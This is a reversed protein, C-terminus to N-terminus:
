LHGGASLRTDVIGLFLDKLKSQTSGEAFHAMKHHHACVIALNHLADEGNEFLPIIHHVECYPIGDPKKFTNICEPHLCFHGHVDKAQKVWGKDRAFTEAIYERKERKARDMPMQDYVFAPADEHLEGHLVIPERLTYTGRKDLFTLVGDNRLYQFQQRIKAFANNNLPSHELIQGENASNFEALTFTRSGRASCFDVVLNQTFEKWSLDIM